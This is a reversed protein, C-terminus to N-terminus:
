DAKRASIGGGKDSVEIMVQRDDAGVFICVDPDTDSELDMSSLRRPLRSGVAATQPDLSKGPRASAAGPQRRRRRLTAAASNKLLEEVVLLLYQPLFSFEIGKESSSCVHSQVTM